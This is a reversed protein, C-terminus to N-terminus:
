PSSFTVRKKPLSEPTVNKEEHELLLSPQKRRQARIDRQEQQLQWKYRSLQERRKWQLRERVSARKRKIPSDPPSDPPLLSPVDPLVVLPSVPSSVPVDIDQRRPSTTHKQPLLILKIPSGVKEVLTHEGHIKSISKLGLLDTTSSREPEIRYESRTGDM